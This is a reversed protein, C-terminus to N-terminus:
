PRSDFRYPILDTDFPLRRKDPHGHNYPRSPHNVFMAEGPGVNEVAHFVGSPITLHARRSAGFFHEALVGETPSGARSGRM